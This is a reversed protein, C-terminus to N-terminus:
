AAQLIDNLSNRPFSVELVRQAVDPHRKTAHNLLKIKNMLQSDSRGLEHYGCVSCTLLIQM